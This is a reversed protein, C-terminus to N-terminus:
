LRPNVVYEDGPRLRQEQLWTGAHPLLPEVDPRAERKLADRLSATERVDVVPDTGTSVVVGFVEKARERSVIGDRVDRRVLEVDRDVPRGWGGGGSSIGVWRDSRGALKVAGAASFYRRAGSAVDEVYQGGGIGAM